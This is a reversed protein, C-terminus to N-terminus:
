WDQRNNFADRIDKEDPSENWGHYPVDIKLPKFEAEDEDMGFDDFNYLHELLDGLPRTRSLIADGIGGYLSYAPEVQSAMSVHFPILFRKGDHYERWLEKHDIGFESLPRLFDKFMERETAYNYAENYVSVIFDKCEDDTEIVQKLADRDAKMVASFAKEEDFWEEEDFEDRYYEWSPQEGISEALKKLLEDVQEDTIDDLADEADRWKAWSDDLLGFMDEGYKEILDYSSIRDNGGDSDSYLFALDKITEGEIPIMWKDKGDVNKIVLDQLKSKVKEIDMDGNSWAHWLDSVLGRNEIFREYLGREKLKPVIYNFVDKKLTGASLYLEPREDLMKDVLAQDTVDEVHFDESRQYEDGFETIGYKIYLDVIYKHYKEVPKKNNKGKCQYVMRYGKSPDDSDVYDVAITVHPESGETKRERLSLITDASTRGCHGMACAEDDASNTELDIWYFKDPFEMIIKGDEQTVLGSARLKSHWETSAKDMSDLTGSVFDPRYVQTNRAMSFIYDFVNTWKRNRSLPSVAQDFIKETQQSMKETSGKAWALAEKYEEFIQNDIEGVNDPDKKMREYQANLANTATDVMAAKFQKAVWFKVKELDIDKPLRGNDPVFKEMLEEAVSIFAPQIKQKKLEASIDFREVLQDFGLLSESVRVIDLPTGPDESSLTEAATQCEDWTGDFLPERFSSYISRAKIVQWKGSKDTSESIFQNFRKVM